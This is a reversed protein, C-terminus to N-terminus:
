KEFDELWKKIAKAWRNWDGDREACRAICEPAPTQILKAEAGMKFFPDRDARKPACAIVWTHRIETYRDITNILYNRCDNVRDFLIQERTHGDCGTLAQNILDYDILVDGPSMHKKAYTTKGAGPPGYILYIM